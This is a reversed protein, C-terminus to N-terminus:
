GPRRHTIHDLYPSTDDVTIGTEDLSAYLDRSAPGTSNTLWTLAAAPDAAGRHRLADRLHTSVCRSRGPQDVILEFVALLKAADALLGAPVPVYPEDAVGATDSDPDHHPWSSPGTPPTTM